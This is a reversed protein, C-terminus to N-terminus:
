KKNVKIYVCCEESHNLGLVKILWDDFLMNQSFFNFLEKDGYLTSYKKDLFFDKISKECTPDYRKEYEAASPSREFSAVTKSVSDVQYNFQFPLAGKYKIPLKLENDSSRQIIFTNIIRGQGDQRNTLFPQGTDALLIEINEGVESLLRLGETVLGSGEEIQNGIASVFGDFLMLGTYPVLSDFAQKFTGAGDVLHRFTWSSVIMDVKGKIDWGKEEFEKELNEIKFAGLKYITCRGIHTVEEGGYSEGRIGIIHVKVDEAIGKGEENIYHALADGWQLRGAGIDMFYFEKRRPNSQILHLALKKEDILALLYQKFGNYAWQGNKKSSLNKYVEDIKNQLEIPRDQWRLFESETGKEERGVVCSEGPYFSEDCFKEGTEEEISYGAQIGLLTITILTKLMNKILNKM